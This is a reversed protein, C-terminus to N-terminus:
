KAPNTHSTFEDVTCLKQEHLVSTTLTKYVVDLSRECIGTLSFKAVFTVAIFDRIYGELGDVHGKVEIVTWNRGCDSCVHSFTSTYEKVENGQTSVKRVLIISVLM